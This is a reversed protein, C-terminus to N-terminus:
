YFYTLAVVLRRHQAMQFARFGYRKLNRYASGNGSHDAQAPRFGDAVYGFSRDRPPLPLSRDAPDRRQLLFFHSRKNCETFDRKDTDSIPCIKGHLEEMCRIIAAKKFGRFFRLALSSMMASAIGVLHHIFYKLAPCSCCLRFPCSASKLHGFHVSSIKGFGIM